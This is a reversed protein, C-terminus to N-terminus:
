QIERTKVQAPTQSSKMNKHGLNTTKSTSNPTESISKNSKEPKQHHNILTIIQLYENKM